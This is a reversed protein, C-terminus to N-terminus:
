RLFEFLIQFQYLMQPMSNLWVTIVGQIGYDMAFRGPQGLGTDGEALSPRFRDQDMAASVTVRRISSWGAKGFRNRADPLTSCKAYPSVEM